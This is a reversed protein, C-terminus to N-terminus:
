SPPGRLQKVWTLTATPPIDTDMTDMTPIPSPKLLDREMVMAMASGTAPTDTTCSLSPRQNPRLSVMLRGRVMFVMDMGTLQIDTVTPCTTPILRQKQSPTPLGRETFDMDTATIHTDMHCTTPILRPRPSPMLPGRETFDTDM